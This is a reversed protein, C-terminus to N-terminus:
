ALESLARAAARYEAPDEFRHGHVVRTVGISSLEELNARTAGLDGLDLSAFTIAEPVPRSASRCQEHLAAIKPALKAPNAGMPM